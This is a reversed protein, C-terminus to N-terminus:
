RLWLRLVHPPGSAKVEVVIELFHPISYGSAMSPARICMYIDQHWVQLELIYIYIRIGNKSSRYICIYGSAM